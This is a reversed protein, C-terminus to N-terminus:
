SRPAILPRAAHQRPGHGHAAPQLPQHGVTRHRRGDERPRRAERERGDGGSGRDPLHRRRQAAGSRRRARASRVRRRGRLLQHGATRRRAREADRRPGARSRGPRHGQRPRHARGAGAQRRHLEHRRRDHGAEPGQDGHHAGERVQRAAVLDPGGIWFMVEADTGGGFENVPAVQTRLNLRQYQPLVEKRVRDM